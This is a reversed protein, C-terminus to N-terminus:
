FAPGGKKEPLLKRPVAASVSLRVQVRKQKDNGGNV